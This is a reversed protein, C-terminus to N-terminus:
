KKGGKVAGFPKPETFKEILPTFANMILISFSVGEPYGGFMRIVFTLIGCGIGFVIMGKKTVPSTVMDTAMFIAGLMLGGGLIHFLPNIYKHPNYIWFATTMIAVTGIYAAPIHWTIIKRYLLFLGGILLGLASVEGISGGINGVFMDWLSIQGAGNVTGKSIMEV